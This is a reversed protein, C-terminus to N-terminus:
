VFLLLNGRLQYAFHWHALRWSGSAAACFWNREKVAECQSYQAPRGEKFRPLNNSPQRVRCGRGDDYLLQPSIWRLSTKSVLERDVRSGRTYDLSGAPDQCQAWKSKRIAKALRLFSQQHHKSQIVVLWVFPLDAGSDGRPLRRNSRSSGARGLRKFRGM